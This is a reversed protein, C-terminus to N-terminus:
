PNDAPPGADPGAVIELIEEHLAGNAALGTGTRHDPRGTFDTFVGGAEPIIVAMPAVDWPNVVPDCMAEIRGAAVLAYGYADGWGRLTLPSRHLREAAGAPLLDYGSTCLVSGELRDRDNVSIRSGELFCGRGRGAAVTRGLAPLHIVGAAMGHDDELALLTAFLPVGRVFSLTGDIPDIYWTRGGAGGDSGYEEGIVADKPRREALERRLLREAARDAETVPSGDAKIEVEVSPHFWKLTLRGARRALEVTEELLSESVAPAASM